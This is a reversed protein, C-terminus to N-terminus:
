EYSLNIHKKEEMFTLYDNKCNCDQKQHICFTEDVHKIVYIRLENYKNNLASLYQLVMYVPASFILLIILYYLYEMDSTIDKTLIFITIIAIVSISPIAIMCKFMDLHKKRKILEESQKKASYTLYRYFPQEKFDPDM